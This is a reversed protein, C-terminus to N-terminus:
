TGFLPGGADRESGRRREADEAAMLSYLIRYTETIDGVLEDYSYLPEENHRIVRVDRSENDAYKWLELRLGELEPYNVRFRQHM